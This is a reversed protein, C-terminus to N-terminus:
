VAYEVWWENSILISDVNNFATVGFSIQTLSKWFFTKVYIEETKMIKIYIILIAVSILKKKQYYQNIKLKTYM